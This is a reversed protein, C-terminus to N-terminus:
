IKIELSPNNMEEPCGEHDFVQHTTYKMGKVFLARKFSEWIEDVILPDDVLKPLKFSNKNRKNQCSVSKRKHKMKM